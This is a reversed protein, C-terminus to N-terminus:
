FETGPSVGQCTWCRLAYRDGVRVWRVLQHRCTMRRWLDWLKELRSM